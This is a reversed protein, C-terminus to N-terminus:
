IANRKPSYRSRVRLQRREQLRRNLLLSLAQPGCRGEGAYWSSGQQDGNTNHYRTQVPVFFRKHLAVPSLIQLAAHETCTAFGAEVKFGSLHLATILHIIQHYQAPLFNLALAGSCPQVHEAQNMLRTVNSVHGRQVFLPTLGLLSLVSTNLNLANKQLLYMAICTYPHSDDVNNAMETGIDVQSNQLDFYQIHNSQQTNLCDQIKNKYSPSRYM